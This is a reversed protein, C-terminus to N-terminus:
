GCLVMNSFSYDAFGDSFLPSTVGIRVLREDIANWCYIHDEIIVNPCNNLLGNDADFPYLPFILNGHCMRHLVIEGTHHRMINDVKLEDGVCRQNDLLRYILYTAERVSEQALKNLICAGTIGYLSLAEGNNMLVKLNNDFSWEQSIVDNWMVGEERCNWCIRDSCKHTPINSNMYSPFKSCSMAKIHWVTMGTVLSDTSFSNFSYNREHLHEDVSDFVLFPVSGYYFGNQKLIFVKPHGMCLVIQQIPEEFKCAHKIKMCDGIFGESWKLSNRLLLTCSIDSSDDNYFALPKNVILTKRNIVYISPDHLVDWQAIAM